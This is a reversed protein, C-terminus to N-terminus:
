GTLTPILHQYFHHPGRVNHISHPSSSYNFSCVDMAIMGFAENDEGQGGNPINEDIPDEQIDWVLDGDEPLTPFLDAKIITLYYALLTCLFSGVVDFPSNLSAGDPPYSLIYNATLYNM